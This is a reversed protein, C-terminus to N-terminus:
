MEEELKPIDELESAADCALDHANRLSTAANEAELAREGEQMNEPIAAVIDDETCALEDLRLSIDTLENYIAAALKRRAINM